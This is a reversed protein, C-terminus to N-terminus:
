PSEFAGLDPARGSFRGANIGHVVEGQDIAPSSARLRYDHKIPDVFHPDISQGHKEWGLKRLDAMAKVQTAPQGDQTNTDVIGLRNNGRTFYSNYDLDTPFPEFSYLVLVDAKESVILNNRAYFRKWRAPAVLELGVAEKPADITNHIFFLDGVRSHTDGTQFKFPHGPQTKLGGEPRITFIDPVISHFVNRLVYIPGGQAVALSLSANCRHFENGWIRVNRADGDLEFGDEACNWVRNNHFDIEYSDPNKDNLSPPGLHGAQAFDHFRCRRVVIGRGRFGHQYLLGGRELMRSYFPFINSYPAHNDYSAKIKWAHWGAMADFFECDQIAINRCDGDLMLGIDNIAFTCHDIVLDQCDTLQLATGGPARGYHAFHLNRLRVHSQGAITLGRIERTIAFQKKAPDSNDRFKVYLRKPTRWDGNLLLNGSPNRYFGDLEADFRVIGTRDIGIAIKHAVLDELSQHPYLRVGDAIVLNPNLAATDTVYLGKTGTARWAIPTPDAGDLIVSQGAAGEIVLPRESTGGANLRLDGVHYRGKLLVIRQSQGVRAIADALAGPSARTFATGRGTPSAYLAKASKPFNPEARTTVTRELILGDLASTTSDRLTVRIFYDTGPVCWFIGGSLRQFDNDVRSLPFGSTLQDKNPGYELTATADKELDPTKLRVNVGVTNFNPFLDLEADIGQPAGLSAILLLWYM